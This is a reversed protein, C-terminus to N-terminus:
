QNTLPMSIPTAALSRSGNTWEFSTRPWVNHETYASNACYSALQPQSLAVTAGLRTSPTVFPTLTSTGRGNVMCMAMLLALAPALLRWLHAEAIAPEARRVDASSAQEAAGFLRAKLAASPRRPTWSALRNEVQNWDNM